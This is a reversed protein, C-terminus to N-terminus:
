RWKAFLGLVPVIPGLHRFHYLIRQRLGPLRYTGYSRIIMIKFRTYDKLKLYRWSINMRSIALGRKYVDEPCGNRKAVQLARRQGYYLRWVDGRKATSTGGRHLRYVSLPEHILGINGSSALIMTRCYDYGRAWPRIPFGGEPIASHRYMLSGASIFNFLACLTNMNTITTDVPFRRVKANQYRSDESKAKVVHAVVAVGAHKELFDHQRQLKGPLFYDDGDTYSIYKGRATELVSAINRKPGINREHIVPIVVSPNVAGYELVLDKSGDSSADDGVIIEFPFNTKQNLISDLCEELYDKFNYSLVVVSVVPVTNVESM